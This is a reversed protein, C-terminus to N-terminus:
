VLKEHLKRVITSIYAFPSNKSWKKEKGGGQEIVEIDIKRWYSIESTSSKRPKKPSFDEFIFELTFKKAEM